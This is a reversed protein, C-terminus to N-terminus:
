QRGLQVTAAATVIKSELIATKFSANFVDDSFKAASERASRRMLISQDEPMDLAKAFCTAYEEETSALFGTKRDVIIDEKPGGSNHAVVILGAALLEVVGIGFHENWMTHLGVSAKGFWEKVVSYPQNLVFDVSKELGLSLVLDRLEHVRKEDDPGRCSGVLVLRAKHHFKPEKQILRAFSRVQLKHDKEPRFQGISVIIPDKRNNLPLNKLSEVDCPPYVVIPRAAKWLFAIHNYTWSSNVMVLRAMSGVFGYAVAFVTYYIIKIYTTMSSKAVNADNNYTPRREWVLKLM